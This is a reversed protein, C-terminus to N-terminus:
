CCASQEPQILSCANAILVHGEVSRPPVDFLAVHGTKLDQIFRTEIGEFWDAVYNAVLMVLYSILVPVAGIVGFIPVFM